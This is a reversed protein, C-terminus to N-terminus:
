TSLKLKAAPPVTVTTAGIDTLEVTITKALGGKITAGGPGTEATMKLEYKTVAGDKIWLRFTGAAKDPPSQMWGPPVLLQDAGWETLTGTVVGDAFHMESYNSAVIALEEHPLNVGSPLKPGPTTSASDQNGRRQSSTGTGGIGGTGSRGRKSRTASNGSNSASSGSGTDTSASSTSTDIPVVWNGGSEMVYKSDGLFVTNVGGGSGSKSSSSSSSAGGSGAFGTFTLLSYGDASTKGTIGMARSNQDITATWSYNVVSSLKMAAVIADDTQDARVLVAGGLLALLIPLSRLVRRKM